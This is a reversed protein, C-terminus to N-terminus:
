IFELDSLFYTVFISVTFVFFINKQNVIPPLNSVVTFKFM